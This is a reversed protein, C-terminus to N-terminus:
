SFNNMIKEFLFIRNGFPDEIWSFRGNPEIQVKDSVKGNLLKAIELAQSLNGVEFYVKVGPSKSSPSSAGSDIQNIEKVKTDHGVSQHNTSKSVLSVGVQSGLEVELIARGFIEAPSTKLNFVKAYFEKASELDTVEIDIQAVHATM